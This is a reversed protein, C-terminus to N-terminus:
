FRRRKASISGGADNFRKPDAQSKIEDITNKVDEQLTPQLSEKYKQYGEVIKNIKEAEEIDKTSYYEEAKREYEEQAKRAQYIEADEEFDNLEKEFNEITRIEELEGVNIALEPPVEEHLEYNEIDNYTYLPRYLAPLEHSGHVPRMTFSFQIKSPAGSAHNILEALSHNRTSYFEYMSFFDGLEKSYETKGQSVKGLLLLMRIVESISPLKQVSYFTSDGDVGTFGIGVDVYAMEYTAPPGTILADTETNDIRIMTNIANGLKTILQKLLELREAENGFMYIIANIKKLVQNQFIKRFVHYQTYNELMFQNIASFVSFNSSGFLNSM